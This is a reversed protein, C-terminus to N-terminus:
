QGDDDDDDSEEENNMMMADEDKDDVDDNIGGIFHVYRWVLKRDDYDDNFRLITLWRWVM